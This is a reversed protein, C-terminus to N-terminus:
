RMFLQSSLATHILLLLPILIRLLHDNSLSLVQFCHPNSPLTAPFSSEFVLCGLLTTRQVFALMLSPYKSSSAPGGKSESVISGLESSHVLNPFHRVRAIIFAWFKRHEFWLVFVISIHCFLAVLHRWVNETGWSSQFRLPVSFLFGCAFFEFVLHNLHRFFWVLFMNIFRYTFRYSVRHAWWPHLYVDHLRYVYAWWFLASKEFCANLVLLVEKKLAFIKLGLIFFRGIWILTDELVIVKWFWHLTNGM